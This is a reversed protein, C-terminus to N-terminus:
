YIYPKYAMRKAKVSTFHGFMNKRYQKKFNPESNNKIILKTPNKIKDKKDDLNKIENPMLNIKQNHFLYLGVVIGILLYWNRTFYEM